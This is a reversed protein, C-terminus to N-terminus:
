HLKKEKKIKLNKELDSRRWFKVKRYYGGSVLPRNFLRSSVPGFEWYFLFTRFISSKINKRSFPSNPQNQNACPAPQFTVSFGGTRAPYRLFFIHATGLGCRDFKKVPVTGMKSEGTHDTHQPVTRQPSKDMSAKMSMGNDGHTQAASRGTGNENGVSGRREMLKEGEPMSASAANQGFMGGDGNSVLKGPHGHNNAKQPRALSTPVSRFNEVLNSRRLAAGRAHDNSDGGQRDGHNESWQLYSGPASFTKQLGLEGGSTSSSLSAIDPFCISHFSFGRSYEWFSLYLAYINKRSPKSPFNRMRLQM